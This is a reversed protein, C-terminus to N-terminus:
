KFFDREIAQLEEAVPLLGAGLTCATVLAALAAPEHWGHWRLAYPVAGATLGAIAGAASKTLWTSPAPDELSAPPPPPAGAQTRPPLTMRLPARAAHEAAVFVAAGLGLPLWRQAGRACGRTLTDLTFASAPSATASREARALEFVGHVAAFALLPFSANFGLLAHRLPMPLEVAQTASVAPAMSHRASPGEEAIKAAEAAALRAKGEEVDRRFRAGANASEERVDALWARAGNAAEVARAALGSLGSSPALREHLERRAREIAADPDGADAM